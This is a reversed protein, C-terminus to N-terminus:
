KKDLEKKMEIQLVNFADEIKKSLKLIQSTDGEEVALKEVQELMEFIDMRKIMNFGSKISHASIKIRRYNSSQINTKIEEIEKKSSRLFLSIMDRLFDQDDGAIKQLHSLNYQASQPERTTQNQSDKKTPEKGWLTKKIVASLDTSKFPKSLYGDMGYAYYKKDNGKLAHATLAIIPTESKPKDMHERIFRTTEVGDMVPMQIDMLIVDYNNELLKEIAVKGNSAIEVTANLGELLRKAVFQNFEQDEVLLIRINSLDAEEDETMDSTKNEIEFNKDKEFELIFFFTTGKGPESEVILQGGMLEVLKKSISLGLGTGGYVRTTSADAQDFENFIIELKEPAIGIGTDKVAFKIQCSTNTEKVLSLLIEVSGQTTFKVANDVLNLLVQELRLSDGILVLNQDRSPCVYRLSINKKNAKIMSTNVVSIIADKIIFPTKEIILKNSEIKSIDLIDNIINLLNDASKEIINLYELQQATLATKKFLESVGIIANMPTRIEHSTNALFLEKAKTSEEAKEKAKRLDEESKKRETIDFLTGIIKVIKKNRFIPIGRALIHIISGDPLINRIEVANEVGNNKILDLAQKLLKRDKPYMTKLFDEEKPPTKSPKTGFLNYTEKSWYIRDEVLDIEWSGLRAIRQTENLRAESNMIEIEARKRVTINRIIALVEKKGSVAAVRCEYYQMGQPMELEDDFIQTERTEIAKTIHRYLIDANAKPLVEFINRGLLKEPQAILDKETEKKTHFDLYTGQADFRFMLDPIADLIAKYHINWAQAREKVLRIEEKMRREKTTDLEIAIFKEINGNEDLVPNIHLMVWYTKGNKRYNLIEEVVSEKANLKARMRKIVAPDSGKGQLLTGPRKGILEDLSYGSMRVFGENAWEIVREKNTIIVGNNTKSAVMSLKRLEAEVRKKETYDKIFATFIYENNIVAQSLTLLIPVKKGSKTQLEVERGNGIVKPIKTELYRSLYNDHHVSHVSPMLMKVNKNLVENRDYEFLNEAAKNFFEIIGYQNITVVADVCGELISRHKDKESQLSKHFNLDNM